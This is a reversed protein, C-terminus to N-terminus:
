HAMSHGIQIEGTIKHGYFKFNHFDIDIADTAVSVLQLTCDKTCSVVGAKIQRNLTITVNATQYAITNPPIPSAYSLVSNGVLQGSLTLSGLSSTAKGSTAAPFVRSFSGRSRIGSAM